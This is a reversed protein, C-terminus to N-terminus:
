ILVEGPRGEGPNKKGCFFAALSGGGAAFRKVLWHLFAVVFIFNKMSDFAV